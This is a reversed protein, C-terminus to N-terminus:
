LLPLLLQTETCAEYSLHQGFFMCRIGPGEVLRNIYFSKTEMVVVVDDFVWHIKAADLHNYEFQNCVHTHGSM